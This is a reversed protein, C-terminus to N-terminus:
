GLSRKKEPLFYVLGLLLIPFFALGCLVTRISFLDALRGTIPTMMGGTGYALGLMLSAVLSKGRPAIEQAMTVFLPITAMVFFGALFSAVYVGMSPYLLLYLFPIALSYSVYFVPKYGFRDSLLGSVLGSLAGAVNYLAVVLGISFLSHGERSYLVPIFTM